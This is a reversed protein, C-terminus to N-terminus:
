LAAQSWSPAMRARPAPNSAARPAALLPTVVVARLPASRGAGVV